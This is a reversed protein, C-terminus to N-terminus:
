LKGTPMGVSKKRPKKPKKEKKDSVDQEEESDFPHDWDIIRGGAFSDLQDPTLEVGESKALSALEEPTKCALAKAKNEESLGNLMEENIKM